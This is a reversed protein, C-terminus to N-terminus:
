PTAKAGYPDFSPKGGYPDFGGKCCGYGGGKGGYPDFGKGGGGYPDFGKGYMPAPAGYGGMMMGGGYGGGWQDFGGGMGGMGGMCGGGMCGGGGMGWGGGGGFKGQDKGGDKGKGKAKGGSKDDEMSRSCGTVRKAVKQGPTKDSDETDFNLEDGKEPRGDICDNIHCFVDAGDLDIFGYGKGDVFSKCVGDCSGNRVAKVNKAVLEGPKKPSDETDFEVLVDVRPRFTGCDKIHLFVDKGDHNIFGWGGKDNFSKVNGQCSM